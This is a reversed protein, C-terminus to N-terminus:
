RGPWKWAPQDFPDRDHVFTEGLDKDLEIHNTDEDAGITEVLYPAHSVVWIQSHEAYTKMLRSLPALLDSHLSTEPENLVMLPPPRPTFLAAILLM